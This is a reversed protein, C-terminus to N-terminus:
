MPWPAAASAHSSCRHGLLFGALDLGDVLVLDGPELVGVAGLVEEVVVADAPLQGLVAIGVRDLVLNGGVLRDDDLVLVCPRLVGLRGGDHGRHGRVRALLRAGRDERGGPRVVQEHELVDPGAVALEGDQM